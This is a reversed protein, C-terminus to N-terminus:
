KSYWNWNLKWYILVPISIEVEYPDKFNQKLYGGGLEFIFSQKKNRKKFSEHAWGFSIFYEDSISSTAYGGKVSLGNLKIKEKISKYHKDLFINIGGALAISSKIDSTYGMDIFIPRYYAGLEIATMSNTYFRIPVGGLGGGGIAVGYSFDGGYEDLNIEEREKTIKEIDSFRYVFISGGETKIKVQENPIQEIITGKIVSGDKLYVVDKYEQSFGSYLISILLLLLLTLKKMKKM